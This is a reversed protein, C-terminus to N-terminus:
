ILLIPSIVMKLWKRSLAARKRSTSTKRFTSFILGSHVCLKAVIVEDVIFFLDYSTHKTGIAEMAWIVDVGQNM